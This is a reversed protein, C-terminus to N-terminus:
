QQKTGICYLHKEGRIYIRGDGFAPSAFCNEGLQGKALDKYERGAEIVFTVGEESILYIRDGVLSPSAIFATELDKEWVKSGDAAGYCTLTGDTTLLFVLEGNSVPSCIDPLGDEAAWAVHSNTVNGRGNPRIAFLKADVNVALVLGAAYIPSPAVDGSLCEVRWLETGTMPEYAIVWPNACIIVQDGSETNIVIPTAWSNPVPRPTRWVTDGSLVDVAVIESDNDEASAQDLLVLVLNRYVTLSSAHGYMNELPGFERSWIPKGELDFCVVDGTAFIAFVRRGDTAPTPAAFGTDEMVEPPKADGDNSVARQWLLKGSNTNYCYVERKHKNAGTLFLRDGWIVPSSKGPLPVQAKWIIGEGTAGDWSSPINTYASIGLGGPGRFRPWNKRIQEAAPYTRAEPASTDRSTATLIVALACVVMGSVAVSWRGLTAARADEDRDLDRHQPMPPKIRYNAMGKIGIIFVVVGVLLLYSGKQSLRQRRFYEQRLELDLERIQTKVSEDRPRQGLSAKLQRLQDSDLPDSWTSQFHNLLLFISVVISFVAAIISTWVATQYWAPQGGTEAAQRSAGMERTAIAAPSTERLRAREVPCYSFCRGCALCSAPDAEYSDRSRRISLHILKGGVILGFFGGLLQTALVFRDMVASAEDYLESTPRGSARFAESADTLGQVRGAEELRIREALRVTAHMRSFPAALGTGLWAGVAIFLPLLLLFALLRTRGETRNRARRPATSSRIAGFPCSEECLRCRVCEDPTITVRWRSVRSLWRLVVGYPCLFRCYPRGVFLAILLFCMGLIVMNLNGSLRFFSVFPDYRCIVFASGTAAFLVAAALYLYALLRLGHELWLPIAAPRVLVADQIAGIPCVAACFGRGFFLTFLLPALFFILVALPIAYSHDFIAVTVNQIAGIPCVCGKRWFGFYALSFIMLVFIRRRSRDRLALYSAIALATILVVVDLYEYVDARPNPTTTIPLQHGSEDFDPPPFREVGLAGSCMIALFATPFLLRM